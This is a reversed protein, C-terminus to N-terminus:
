KQPYMNYHAQPGVVPSPAQDMYTASGGVSDASTVFRHSSASCLRLPRPAAPSKPLPEPVDEHGKRTYSLTGM